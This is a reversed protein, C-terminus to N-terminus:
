FRKLYSYLAVLTEFYNSIIDLIVKGDCVMSYAVLAVTHMSRLKYGRAKCFMRISFDRSM